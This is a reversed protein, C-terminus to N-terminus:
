LAGVPETTTAVLLVATVLWWVLGEQVVVNKKKLIPTTLEFTQLLVLFNWWPNLGAATPLLICSNNEEPQLPRVSM